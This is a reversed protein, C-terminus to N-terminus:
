DLLHREFVARRATVYEADGLYQLHHGEALHRTFSPHGAAAQTRMFDVLAHLRTVVTDLLRARASPALGYHDCFARARAAQRDPTGHADPSGPATLPAWRYVAYAIDWLRPAPHATDFDIVGTVRDGTLVCNYPAFDGHCIVEAPERAPLMWGESPATGALSVTSDHYARLLEAATRLADASTVAPTRPDTGAEGPLFDLIETRGEDLTGHVAPAGTFGQERLHRLLGHVLPSWPGTPRRVTGGVRLVDNVGGAMRQPTDDCM